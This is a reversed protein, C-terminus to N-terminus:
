GESRWQRNRLEGPRSRPGRESRLMRRVEKMEKEESSMHCRGLSATGAQRSVAFHM